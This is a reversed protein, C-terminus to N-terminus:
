GHGRFAQFIGLVAPGAIIVFLAPMICFVMPFLMKVPAKQAMEQAFQHRKVRMESAQSRLISGVSVGFTDAQILALIFSRLEPLEVRADLAHLADSRSSGARVEGLMRSFEESLPGPVLTVTRALAQEFGLGAEVSITLLDLVDPLKRRMAFQREAVVRNLWADPALVGAVCIFAIVAVLTLGTLSTLTLVVLCLIPVAVISVVRIVLFRDTEDATGRGAIVLKHRLKDLYETPLFKKLLGVLYMLAPTLVRTAFPDRLDEERKVVSDYDGLRASTARVSLRKDAQVAAAYALATATIFITIVVLILM